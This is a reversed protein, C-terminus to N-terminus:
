VLERRTRTSRCTHTWVRPSYGRSCAAWRQCCHHPEVCIKMKPKLPTGRGGKMKEGVRRVWTRASPPSARTGLRDPTLAHSLYRRRPSTPPKAPKKGLFTSTAEITLPPHPQRPSPPCGASIRTGWFGVSRQASVCPQLPLLLSEHTIRDVVRKWQDSAAFVGLQSIHIRRIFMRCTLGFYACFCCQSVFFRTLHQSFFNFEKNKIDNYKHLNSYFTVRLIESQIKNM